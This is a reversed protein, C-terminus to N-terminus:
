FRIDSVIKEFITFIAPVPPLVANKRPKKSIKLVDGSKFNSRFVHQFVKIKVELIRGFGNLISGQPDFFCFLFAKSVDQHTKLGRPLLFSGCSRFFIGLLAWSLRFGRLGPRGGLARRSM